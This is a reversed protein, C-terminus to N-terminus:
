GASIFHIKRFRYDSNEVSGSAEREGQSSKCDVFKFNQM